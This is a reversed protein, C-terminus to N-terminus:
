GLGKAKKYGFFYGIGGGGGGVFMIKVCELLFQEKNFYFAAVTIILVTLGLGSLFRIGNKQSIRNHAREAERDREQTQLAALAYQYQHDDRQKQLALASLEEPISLDKEGAPM